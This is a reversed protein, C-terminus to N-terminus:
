CDGVWVGEKNRKWVDKDEKVWKLGQKCDTLEKKKINGRNDM